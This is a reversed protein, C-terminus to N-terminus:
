QELGPSNQELEAKLRNIIDVPFPDVHNRQALYYSLWDGFSLFYLLEEVHNKGKGELEYVKAKENFVQKCIDM